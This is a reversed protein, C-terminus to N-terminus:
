IGLMNFMEVIKDKVVELQQPNKPNNYYVPKGNVKLKLFMNQEGGAITNILWEKIGVDTYAAGNEATRVEAGHSLTDAMRAFSYEIGKFAKNFQLSGDSSVKIIPTGGNVLMQNWQTPYFTANYDADTTQITIRHM